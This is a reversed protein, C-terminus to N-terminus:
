PEYPLNVTFVSGTKPVSKVRLNGKHLKVIRKVWYLGLGSGMVTDSLDNEIRTFKDFIRKLDKQSIGVGQDSVTIEVSRSRKKINIEIESNPYSYKIANEILNIIALKIESIDVMIMLEKDSAQVHLEQGKLEMAPKMERIASRVIQVIDHPQKDLEYRKSDMQATHLLDNIIRLQRENSNYATKLYTLQEKSLPGAYEEILLSIYQKVATAPTRLQHSALAVFEDKAKNLNLLQNRQETLTKMRQELEHKRKLDEIDTCTGFWKIVNGNKDHQPIARVLFWRYTGDARRIRYEVTAQVGKEWSSVWVEKVHPLDDPHVVEAYKFGLTSEPNKGTYDYWNHNVYDMSGDPESTWVFQPIAEALQRFRMESNTLEQQGYHHEVMDNFLPELKKHLQTASRTTPTASPNKSDLRKVITTKSTKAM